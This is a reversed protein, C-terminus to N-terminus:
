FVKMMIIGQILIDTRVSLDQPQHDFSDEVTPVKGCINRQPFPNGSKGM